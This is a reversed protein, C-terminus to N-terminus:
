QPPPPPRRGNQAGIGMAANTVFNDRATVGALCTPLNPFTESAHYHYVPTDSGATMGVHGSCQDLNDPVTGDIDASGYMAYGDYAYGFLDSPSTEHDCDAAVDEHALATEIDTATAHWHYYGGPDVHGGCTDLAPLHGTELVSPADAFIPVGDLAIGVLAVTGLDTVADAMKPETPILVTTEVDTDLTAELCTNGEPRQGSGPDSINIVGDADYFTYGQESLMRFFAGDLRYTGPNDGDWVWLGGTDDLTEPCFPGIRFAEAPFSTVLKLCEAESGDSLTCAVLTPATIANAAAFDAAGAGGAQAAITSLMLAASALTVKRM